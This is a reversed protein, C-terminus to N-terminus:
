TPFPHLPLRASYGKRTSSEQRMKAAKMFITLKEKTKSQGIYEAMNAPRISLEQQDEEVLNPTIFREM